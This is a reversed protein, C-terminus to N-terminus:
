KTQEKRYKKYMIIYGFNWVHPIKTIYDLALEATDSLFSFVRELIIALFVGAILVILVPSLLAVGLINLNRYKLRDKLPLESCWKRYEKRM